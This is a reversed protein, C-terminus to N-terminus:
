RRNIVNSLPRDTAEINEPSVPLRRNGGLVDSEVARAKRNVAQLFRAGSTALSFAEYGQLL